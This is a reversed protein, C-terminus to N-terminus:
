ALVSRGAARGVMARRTFWAGIGLLMALCLFQIGTLGLALPPYVRIFELLFRFAAYAALYGMLLLEDEKVKAVWVAIVQQRESLGTTCPRVM